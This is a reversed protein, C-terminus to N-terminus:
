DETDRGGYGLRWREALDLAAARSDVTRHRYAEGESAQELRDLSVVWAGTATERAVIRAHGDAREWVIRREGSEIREWM